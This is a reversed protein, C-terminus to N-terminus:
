CSYDTPFSVHFEAGENSVIKMEAELQTVLAGVLQLGLSNSKEPDLEDSFGIGNDSVILSLTTNNIQCATICIKGAREGPFAHKIANSALENLILGCPIATDIELFIDDAKIDVTIQHPNINQVRFLYSILDRIYEAFNIKALNESRYLKEHILAMSRVRTQSDQLADLTHPDTVQGAQLNLLSSVIQLNNKVRHHIEKLLVEKEALSAKLKSEAQRRRQLERQTQEFLRANEFTGAVQTTFIELPLLSEQTPRRSDLPQDVCIIAVIQGDNLKVPVMLMDNPHWYYSHTAAAKKALDKNKQIYTPGEFDEPWNFEGHPVFYSHGIRYKEQLLVSFDGWEYVADELFQRAEHDAGALARVRIQHTDEDVVNLVAVEFGLSNVIEHLLSDIDKNSHLADGLQLIQTLLRNRQQLTEEVSKREMIEQHLQQNILSLEETRLAVRQELEDRVAQLAEEAQQREAIQNNLTAQERILKQSQQEVQNTLRRLWGTVIGATMTGIISPIAQLSSTGGPVTVLTFLATNIIIVLLGVIIGGEVGFFWGAAIPPIASLPVISGGIKPTFILFVAMYSVILALIFILQLFKRRKSIQPPSLSKM